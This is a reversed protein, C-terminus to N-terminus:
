KVLKRRIFEPSSLPGRGESGGAGAFQCLLTRGVAARPKARGPDPSKVGKELSM